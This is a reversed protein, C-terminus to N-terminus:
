MAWPVAEGKDMVFGFRIYMWEIMAQEVPGSSKFLAPHDKQLAENNYESHEMLEYSMAEQNHLM